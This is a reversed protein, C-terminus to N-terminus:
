KYFLILVNKKEETTKISFFYLLAPVLVIPQGHSEMGVLFFLGLEAVCPNQPLAGGRNSTLFILM